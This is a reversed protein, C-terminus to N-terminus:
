RKSKKGRSEDTDRWDVPHVASVVREEAARLRRQADEWDEEQDRGRREDQMIVPSRVRGWGTGEDDDDDDEMDNSFTNVTSSFGGFGDGSDFQVPGFTPSDFKPPTFSIPPPRSEAQLADELDEGGWSEDRAPSNIPSSPSPPTFPREDGGWGGDSTTSIRRTQIPPVDQTPSAWSPPEPTESRELVPPSPSSIARPTATEENDISLDPLPNGSGGEWAIDEKPSWSPMAAEFTTAEGATTHYSVDPPDLQPINPIPSVDPVASSSGAGWPDSVDFSTEPEEMEMKPLSASPKESGWSPGAAWPDEMVTQRRLTLLLSLSIFTLSQGSQSDEM